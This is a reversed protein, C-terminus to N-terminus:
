KKKRKEITFPIKDKHGGQEINLELTFRHAEAPPSYKIEWYEGKDEFKVEVTKKMPLQIKGSVPYQSVKAAKGKSDYAYLQLVGEAQVLELNVTELSQVVGGKKAQFTSPGHDGEHSSAVLCFILSFILSTM